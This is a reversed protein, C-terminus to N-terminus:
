LPDPFISDILAMEDQDDLVGRDKVKSRAAELIKQKGTYTNTESVINGTREGTEVHPIQSDSPTSGGGRLKTITDHAQKIVGKYFDDKMNRYEDVPDKLGMQIDYAFNPDKMKEEFLTGVKSYLNDNRIKSYQRIAQEQQARQQRQLGEWESRIVNRTTSEIMKAIDVTEGPQINDLNDFDNVQRAPKTTQVQALQQQLQMNRDREDKLLRSVHGYQSSTELTGSLQKPSDIGAAELIQQIEALSDNKGGAEPKPEIVEEMQPSLETKTEPMTM